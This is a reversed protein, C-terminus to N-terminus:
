HSGWSPSHSTCCWWSIPSLISKQILAREMQPSTTGKCSFRPHLHPPNRRLPSITSGRVTLLVSVCRTSPLCSTDQRWAQPSTQVTLPHVPSWWHGEMSSHETTGGFCLLPSAISKPPSFQEADFNSLSCTNMTESIFHCSPGHPSLISCPFNSYVLFVVALFHIFSSAPSTISLSFLSPWSMRFHQLFSCYSDMCPQGTPCWGLPIYVLSRPELKAM